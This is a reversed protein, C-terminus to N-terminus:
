GELEDIVKRLELVELPCEPWDHEWCVILDCETPDHGHDRFNSSVYEFEISVQEWREKGVRRKAECDPFATHVAEVLFGLEYAVMGFIYVVGQENLPAHRLGRFEIPAGYETGGGKSWKPKKGRDVEPPSPPAPTEHRSKVELEELFPSSPDNELLWDRYRDLLGQFGGFRKSLTTGHHRSEATFIQLSPISDEQLAVRHFEELLDDDSVPERTQPHKEIDALGQVETWGGRPFLKYVYYDSIGTMREFESMSLSGDNERAAERAAAVIDDRTYEAM